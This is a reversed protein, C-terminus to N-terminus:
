GRNKRAVMWQTLPAISGDYFEVCQWCGAYLAHDDALLLERFGAPRDEVPLAAGMCLDGKLTCPFFQLFWGTMVFVSGSGLMHQWFDKGATGSTKTDIMCQLLPNLSVIWDGIAPTCADGLTEPIQAIFARLDEWDKITGQLWIAPLHSNEDFPASFSKTYLDASLHTFPWQVLARFAMDAHTTTSFPPLTFVSLPTSRFSDACLALIGQVQTWTTPTEIALSSLSSSSSLSPSPPLIQALSQLFVNAIDDPRLRLPRRNCFSKQLVSIYGNRVGTLLHGAIEDPVETGAVVEHYRTHMRHPPLMFSECADCRIKVMNTGGGGVNWPIPPLTAAITLVFTTIHVSPAQAVVIAPAIVDIVDIVDLSTCRYVAAMWETRALSMSNQKRRDDIAQSTAVWLVVEFPGHSVWKWPDIAEFMVNWLCLPLNHVFAEFNCWSSVCTTPFQQFGVEQRANANTPMRGSWVQVAGGMDKSYVQFGVSFNHREFGPRFPIPYAACLDQVWARIPSGNAAGNLVEEDRKYVEQM